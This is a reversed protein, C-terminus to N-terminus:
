KKPEVAAPAAPTAPTAPKAGGKAQIARVREAQAVQRIQPHVKDDAMVKDLIAIADDPKGALNYVQGLRVMTAPDPTGAGEVAQKYEAIAVDYKKRLAAAAGFAEHAQSVYDKKISAWQDDSLQPNPKPADKLAELAAKAYKDSRDLKENLDLDNERARKAIGGALMLMCSYSKPDVELTKECWVTMKEFDGKREYAEATLYMALSKFDTDAFKTMLDDAAKIRADPQQAEFLAKVAEYEKQSKPAPQKQAVLATLGLVGALLFRNM